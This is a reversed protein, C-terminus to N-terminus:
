SDGTSPSGPMFATLAESAKTFESAPLKRVIPMPIGSVASLLACAVGIQTPQKQAQEIEEMTPERVIVSDYTLDGFILPKRLVIITQDTDSM